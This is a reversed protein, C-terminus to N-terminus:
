AAALAMTAVGVAMAVVGVAHATRVGNPALREATVAAAVAAMVRLDMVGLALMVITLGACSQVCHAGLCWGHRWAAGVSRPLTRGHGAAERCVALQATKWATFQLIGAIVVSAGVGIPVARAVASHQMAITALASGLPFVITGVAAWASFYGVGVIATGASGVSPRCRLLTPTLSPLMMAVMMVVWMGVFAATAGLWSQGPMVMWMHSMTWGGPMAMEGMASMSRCWVITMAASAVFVITM